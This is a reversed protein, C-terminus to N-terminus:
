GGRLAYVCGEIILLGMTWHKFLQRRKLLFRARDREQKRRRDMLVNKWDSWLEGKASFAWGGRVKGEM